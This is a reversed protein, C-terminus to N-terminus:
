KIEPKPPHTRIYEIARLIHDPIPPPTPLWESEPHYGNEDATYAIAVREGEPSTFAYFGNMDGNDHGASRISIDNTTELGYSFGEADMNNVYSKVEANVDSDSAAAFALLTALILFKFMATSNSKLVEIVIPSSYRKSGNKKM